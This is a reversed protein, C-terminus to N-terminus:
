AILLRTSTSLFLLETLIQFHYANVAPIGLLMFEILHPLFYIASVECFKSPSSLSRWRSFSDSRSHMILRMVIYFSYYGLFVMVPAAIVVLPFV